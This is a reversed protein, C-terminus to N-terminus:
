SAPDRSILQSRVVTVSRANATWKMGSILGNQAEERPIVHFHQFSCSRGFMNIGENVWDAVTSGLLLLSYYGFPIEM